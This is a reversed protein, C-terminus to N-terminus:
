RKRKRGASLKRSVSRVIQRRREMYQKIRKPIKVNVWRYGRRNKAKVMRQGCWIGKSPKNFGGYSPLWHRWQSRTKKSTKNTKKNCFDRNSAIAKAMVQLNYPGNQLQRKKAQCAEGTPALQCTPYNSLCIQGLGVCGRSNVISERWGSEGKVITIITVPDINHKKGLEQLVPAYAKARPGNVGVQALALVIFPISRFM